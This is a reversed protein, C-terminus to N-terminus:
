EVSVELGDDAVSQLWDGVSELAFWALLTRRNDPCDLMDQRHFGAIVEEPGCLGHSDATEHLLDYIHRENKVYFDCADGTYIFGDFGGDAGHEAAQMIDANDLSCHDKIAAHLTELTDM